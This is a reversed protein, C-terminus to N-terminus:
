LWGLLKSGAFKVDAIRENREQREQVWSKKPPASENGVEVYGNRSLFERHQRRGGIVPRMAGQDAAVARYPEIDRVIQMGESAKREQPANTGHTIEVMADLDKDYVFTRRTM